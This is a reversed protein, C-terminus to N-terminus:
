KKHHIIMALAYFSGLHGAFLSTQYTKNQLYEARSIERLFNGKSEMIYKGSEIVAKEDGMLYQMLFFNVLGHAVVLVVLVKLGLPVPRWFGLM